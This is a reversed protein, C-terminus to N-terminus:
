IKPEKKRKAVFTPVARGKSQASNFERLIKMASASSSQKQPETRKSFDKQSQNLDGPKKKSAYKEQWVARVKPQFELFIEELEKSIIERNEATFACTLAAKPSAKKTKITFIIGLYKYQDESIKESNVIRNQLENIIIRDYHRFGSILGNITILLDKPSYFQLALKKAEALVKNVDLKISIIKFKLM